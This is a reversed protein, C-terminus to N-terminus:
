LPSNDHRRVPIKEKKTSLLDLLDILERRTLKPDIVADVFGREAGIYPNLYTSDYETVYEEIEADSAGRRLIQAAQTAGMVAIEATPWALYADNGITKSDMVIFAGGYSKRLVVAIRPVTARAYAFALQAGHRIMGRWELDKGPYFGPTDVLTILPLNFADCMAVFRAGKQSAPIDLTGAISIPQNAVVGVSRGGFSALGTVLNPAWGSRLEVFYNDDAIHRIIERVDYSGSPTEPLVDSAEPTLRSDLDNTAIRPAELGNYNPFFQLIEAITQLVENDSVIISAVGTERHHVHAGGLEQQSIQVGTMQRVPIPGSVFAYASETMVVIDALGILLATGSVAPGTVAAIVPIVGSCKSLVRAATGWGHLAAVGHNADAGSSALLLIAPLRKALAMELANAITKGDEPTLAGM